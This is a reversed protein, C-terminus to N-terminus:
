SKWGGKIKGVYDSCVGAAGAYHRNCIEPHVVVCYGNIYEYEPHVWIYNRSTLTMDDKDHFFCHMDLDMLEKLVIVSKAHCWLRKRYKLLFEHNIQYSMTDHGLWFSNQFYWVDIEVDFGLEIARKIYSPKNEKSSDPGNLNGRHAILIM